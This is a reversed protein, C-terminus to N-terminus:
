IMIRVITLDDGPKYGYRTEIELVKKNFMMEKDEWQRDILLYEILEEETISDYEKGDFNRFTFIGDTSFSIDYVDSFNLKQTQRKYWSNFDENLHYGLYDPQDGQEFEFLRGNCCILGDGITLSEMEKSKTDLIGLILTSLVEERELHLQNKLQGLENFLRELTEKLYDSASRERKEVFARYGFEKAIKRLLKAMLTSAFHSEKGMSCGDMVAVLVKEFGIDNVTMCDENHNLHFAGIKSLEYKKMIM